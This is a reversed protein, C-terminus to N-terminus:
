KNGSNFYHTDVYEILEKHFQNQAMEDNISEVSSSKFEVCHSLFTRQLKGMEGFKFWDKIIEHSYGNYDTDDAWPLEMKTLELILCEDVNNQLIFESERYCAQLGQEISTRDNYTEVSFKRDLVFAFPHMTIPFCVHGGNTRYYVGSPYKIYGIESDTFQKLHGEHLIDKTSNWLDLSDLSQIAPLALERIVKPTYISCIKKGAALNKKVWNFTGRSYVYDPVNYILIDGSNERTKIFSQSAHNLKIQPPVGDAIPVMSLSIRIKSSRREDLRSKYYSEDAANICVICYEVEEDGLEEEIIKLQLDLIQEFYAKSHGLPGEWLATFFIYKM